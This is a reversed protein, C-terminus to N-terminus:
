NTTSAKDTALSSSISTNFSRSAQIVGNNLYSSIIVSGLVKSLTNKVNIINQKINNVIDTNAQKFNNVIGPGDSKIIEYEKSLKTIDTKVDDIEKSFGLDDITTKVQDSVKNSICDNFTKTSDQNYIPAFYFNLNKCKESDWNMYIYSWKFMLWIFFVIIIIVLSVSSGRITPKIYFYYKKNSEDM